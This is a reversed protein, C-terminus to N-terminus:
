RQITPVRYSGGKGANMLDLSPLENVVQRDFVAKSDEGQLRSVEFVVVADINEIDIDLLGDFERNERLKEFEPTGREITRYGNGYFIQALKEVKNRPPLNSDSSQRYSRQSVILENPNEKLRKIEDKATMDRLHYELALYYM